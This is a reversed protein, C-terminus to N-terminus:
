LVFHANVNCSPSLNHRSGRFLQLLALDLLPLSIEAQWPFVNQTVQFIYLVITYLSFDSDSSSDPWAHQFLSLLDKWCLFLFQEFHVIYPAFIAWFNIGLVKKAGTHERREWARHPDSWKDLQCCDRYLGGRGLTASVSLVQPDAKGATPPPTWPEQSPFQQSSLAQQARCYQPAFITVDEAFGQTECHGKQLSLHRLSWAFFFFFFIVQTFNIFECILYDNWCGKKKRDKICDNVLTKQCATSRCHHQHHVCDQCHHGASPLAM